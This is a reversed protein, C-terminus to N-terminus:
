STTESATWARSRAGCESGGSLERHPFELYAPKSGLARELALFGLVVDFNEYDYLTGPEAILGGTERAPPRTGAGFYVLHLGDRAALRQGGPLARQVHRHRAAAHHRRAPGSRRLPTRACCALAVGAALAAARAANSTRLYPSM